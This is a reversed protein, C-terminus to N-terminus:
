GRSLSKTSDSRRRSSREDIKPRCDATRWRTRSQKSETQTGSASVSRPPKSSLQASTAYARVARESQDIAQRLAATQQRFMHQRMAEAVFTSILAPDESPAQIVLGAESGLISAARNLGAVFDAGAANVSAAFTDMADPDAVGDSALRVLLEAYLVMADNLDTLARNAAEARLFLAPESPPVFDFLSDDPIILRLSRAVSRAAADDSLSAAEIFERRAEDAEIRIMGEVGSRLTKVADRYSEFPGPHPATCGILLAFSALIALAKSGVHLQVENWNGHRAHM